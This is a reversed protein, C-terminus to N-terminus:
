AIRFSQQRLKQLELLVTGYPCGNILRCALHLAEVPAYSVLLVTRIAWSSSEAYEM